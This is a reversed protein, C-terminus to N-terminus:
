QNSPGEIFTDFTYSPNLRVQHGPPEDEEKITASVSPVAESAPNNRAPRGIIFNIAPEGKANVPLFACLDEKYNSLLYEKVFINPIEVTVEEPTSALVKIPAFWNGFATASCRKQIFQLFLTWP